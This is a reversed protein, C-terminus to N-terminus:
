VGTIGYLTFTSYQAIDEGDNTEITIEDIASTDSWLGAYMGVSFQANTTSTGSAGWKLLIQKYGVTGAYNPIWVSLAGFTDADASAGTMNWKRFGVEGSAEAATTGSSGTSQGQLLQWAYNGGTDGNLSLRGDEFYDARETRVSGLLYLHTYSSAISAKNWSAAGGAGIEQHDIVTWVAM